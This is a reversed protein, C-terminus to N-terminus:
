NKPPHRAQGMEVVHLREHLRQFVFGGRTIMKSVRARASPLAGSFSLLM